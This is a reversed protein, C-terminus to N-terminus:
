AARLLCPIAHEGYEDPAVGSLSGLGTSFSQDFRLYGMGKPFAPLTTGSPLFWSAGDNNMRRVSVADDFVFAFIYYGADLTPSITSEKNGSSSADFTGGDVLLTSPLGDSALSYIGYKGSASATGSNLTMVLRDFDTSESIYIGTTYTKDATCSFSGVNNSQTMLPNYYYGTRYGREVGGGGAAAWSAVGAGDSTMVYTDTGAGTPLTYSGSIQVKGSGNPTIQINNDAGEQITISGSNTGTNTNLVLDEATNTTIENGDVGDGITVEKADISTNSTVGLTGLTFRSTGGTSFGITDASVLYMGTNTDNSFSYTPAGGTGDTGELPFSVGSGSTDITAVNGSITLDGNSVKITTIPRGSPAGDVETVTL